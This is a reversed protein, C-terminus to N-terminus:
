RPVSRERWNYVRGSREGVRWDVEGKVSRVFGILPPLLTTFGTGRGDGRKVQPENSDGNRESKEKRESAREYRRNGRSEEVAKGWLSETRRSGARPRWGSDLAPSEWSVFM